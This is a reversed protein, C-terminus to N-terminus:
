ASSRNLINMLLVVREGGDNAIFIAEVDSFPGQTILLGRAYARGTSHSTADSARRLV